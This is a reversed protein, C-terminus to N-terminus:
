LWGASHAIWVLFGGNVVTSILIAILLGRGSGRESEWELRIRAFRAEVTMVRCILKTISKQEAEM